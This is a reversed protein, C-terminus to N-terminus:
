VFPRCSASVSAIKLSYSYSVLYGAPCFWNAIEIAAARTWVHFYTFCVAGPSTAPYNKGEVMVINDLAAYTARPDSAANGM